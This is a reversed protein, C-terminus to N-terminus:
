GDKWRCWAQVAKTLDDKAAKVDDLDVFRMTRVLKGNGELRHHEGPIESGRHFLLSVVNKSPNFSAINGEFVFTPTKWKICETIREDASLIVERALRMADDLPHDREVLWQEVEASYNM